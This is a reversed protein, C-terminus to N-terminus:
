GRVRYPDVVSSATATITHDNTRLIPLNALPVTCTVTVTVQSPTGLPADLGTLDTTVDLGTCSLDSLIADATTRAATDAAGTTRTISAARAAEAAASDVKGHAIAIRGGMIVVALIVIIGPVVIATSLTFAGEDTLRNRNM